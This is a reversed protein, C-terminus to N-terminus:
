AKITRPIRIIIPFASHASPDLLLKGGHDSIIKHAVNLYLSLSWPKWQLESDFLQCFHRSETKGIVIELENESDQMVIELGSAQFGSSLIEKFILSLAKKFLDSDLPVMLHPTNITLLPPLGVKEIEEQILRDMKVLKRQPLPLNVFNDVEKLVMEIREVSTMIAKFHNGKVSESESPTM